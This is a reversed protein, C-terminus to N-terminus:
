VKGTEASGHDGDRERRLLERKRDVGWRYGSLSGDTRVVRHCPIAVALRNAACAGAVARVAKPSGILQALDGYSLTEGAPISKLAQWVKQQFATGHIDLPLDLNAGPKEVLGVVQSVLREFEEDGGELDAAPFEEQLERLLEEPDNGLTIACVGRESAAVLVSGLSCEGVAFLIKTGTGGSRYSGPTMGLLGDSEEYFRGASGYGAAYIAESVSGTHRLEHRVRKTRDAAAYAHPTLGTSEKFLRHLHVQSVGVQLALERLTPKQESSEIYRCVREVIERQEVAPSKGAPRCRLCPRYGAGEAAMSTAFFEVNDPSPRRSPCTPRCYVGTTAVAYVFAGDAALDRVLVAQWRLDRLIEEQQARESEGRETETAETM